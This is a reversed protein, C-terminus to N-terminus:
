PLNVKSLNKAKDLIIKIKYLHIVIQNYIEKELEIISKLTNSIPSKDTYQKVKEMTNPEVKLLAKFTFKM